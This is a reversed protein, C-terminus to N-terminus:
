SQACVESEKTFDMDSQLAPQPNVEVECFLRQENKTRTYPSSFM